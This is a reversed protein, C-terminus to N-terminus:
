PLVISTRTVAAAKEMVEAADAKATMAEVAVETKVMAEAADERKETDAAVTADAVAATVRSLFSNEM